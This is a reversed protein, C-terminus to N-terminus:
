KEKHHFDLEIDYSIGALLFQQNHHGWTFSYEIHPSWNGFVWSIGAGTNLSWFSEYHSIGKAAALERDSTHSIGTIPYLNMKKYVPILYHFNLEIDWASIQMVEAETKHKVPFFRNVEVGAALHKNFYYFSSVNLGNIPKQTNRITAMDLSIIHQSKGTATVLLLIIVAATIKKM